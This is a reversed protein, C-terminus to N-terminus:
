SGAKSPLWSFRWASFAIAVVAWALLILVDSLALSHAFGSKVSAAHLTNAIHEVPFIKAVTKLAPSLSNDPIFVGSIFYLPLMTMQVVPQAADPNGILASVSYSIGVFSLTGLVVIVLMALLQSPGFGVGYLLKSVVILITGTFLATVVTACAQGAILLAAPAPTARRRKLVGSQRLNSLMIVLNAYSAVVVSMALIGPVYFVHLSVRVGDVRTHGNGFVGNFVVLLILPFLMTFFRSRPNRISILLDFKIQHALMMLPGGVAASRAPARTARAAAARETPSLRPGAEATGIGAVAVAGADNSDQRSLWWRRLFKFLFYM